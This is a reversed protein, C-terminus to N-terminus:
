PPRNPSRHHEDERSSEPRARRKPRGRQRSMRAVRNRRQHYDIRALRYQRRSTGREVEQWEQCLVNLGECVQEM